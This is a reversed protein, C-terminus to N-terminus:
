LSWYSVEEGLKSFDGTRAIDPLQKGIGVSGSVVDRAGQLGLLGGRLQGIGVNAIRRRNLPSIELPGLKFPDKIGEVGTALVDAEQLLNRQGSTFDQVNQRVTPDQAFASIRKGPEQITRQAQSFFDGVPGQLISNVIGVDKVTSRPDIRAPPRAIPRIVDDDRDILNGLRSKVFQSIKETVSAM